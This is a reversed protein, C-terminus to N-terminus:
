RINGPGAYVLSWSQADYGDGLAKWLPEIWSERLPLGLPLRTTVLSALFGEKYTRISSWTGTSWRSFHRDIPENVRYLLM